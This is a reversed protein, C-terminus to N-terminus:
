KEKSNVEISKLFAQHKDLLERLNTLRKKDNSGTAFAITMDDVVKRIGRQEAGVVEARLEDNRQQLADEMGLKDEVGKNYGRKEAQEVEAKALKDRAEWTTEAQKNAIIGAVDEIFAPNCISWKKTKAQIAESMQEGKMVTDEWAKAEM